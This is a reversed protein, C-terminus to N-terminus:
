RESHIQVPQSNNKGDRAFILDDVDRKDRVVSSNVKWTM